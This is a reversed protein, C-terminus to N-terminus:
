KEVSLRSPIDMKHAYLAEIFISSNDNLRFLILHPFDRLSWKRFKYIHLDEYGEGPDYPACAYPNARIFELAQEVATIFREAVRLGARQKYDHAHYKWQRLFLASKQM